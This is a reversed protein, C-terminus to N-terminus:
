VRKWRWFALSAVRGRGDGTVIPMVVCYFLTLGYEAVDRLQAQPFAALAFLGEWLPGHELNVDAVLRRLLWILAAVARLTERVWGLQTRMSDNMGTLLWELAAVTRTRKGPRGSQVVVDSCMSTFSRKHTVLAALIERLSRLKASM